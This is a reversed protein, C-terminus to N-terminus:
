FNGDRREFGTPKGLTVGGASFWSATMEILQEETIEPPGLLQTCRSADSLLATEIGNGRLKATKGFRHGFKQAVDRVSLKKLGTVNLIRAPSDCLAFSRFCYSNADGQWIVNVFGTTLDIPEGHFLKRASISCFEMACISRTTSDFCCSRRAILIPFINLSANGRLRPNLMSVWQLLPQKSTRARAM